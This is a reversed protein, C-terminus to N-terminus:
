GATSGMRKGKEFYTIVYMWPDIAHDYGPEPENTYEGSKDTGYIRNYIENWLETSEEVAFLNMRNMVSIGYTVSDQGKICKVVNFGKLIQPFEKIDAPDLESFKFGNSLKQIATKDAYDAIILDSKNFKLSCYLKALGLENMPKYNILRCWSTNRHIKVGVLAAPAATGFDQGFYERYPLKKYEALTLPKIKTHVQGKRGSSALGLIETKYYHPDYRESNPDGSGEYDRVVDEPLYLNDKYSTQIVVVGQIKKPVLKWYGDEVLELNFYRKVVWHQIDPTNLMIIVLRDKTRISDKFTNFKSYDRIDEAEEIIATDTDSVGKLNTRKSNSSARFGKTFVVMSGTKKNKIGRESKEFEKQFLNYENATDYRMFIENLISERITEKEDRLVAVRRKNITADEVSFKSIEFSKGGGRGGICIVMNTGPPLNYLQMFPDVVPVVGSALMVSKVHEPMEEFISAELHRIM